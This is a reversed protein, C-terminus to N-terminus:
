EAVHKDNYEFMGLPKIFEPKFQIIGFSENAHEYDNGNVWQGHPSGGSGTSPKLTDVTLDLLCALQNKLPVNFHGIYVHGTKNMTGITINHWVTYDLIVNIGHWPSTNFSDYKHIINQHVGGKVSNTGRCCHYTTLGNQDMGMKFYLKVGPPDSYYSLWVNKLVSKAADWACVNFLPRAHIWRPRSLLQTDFGTGLKKLVEEVASKDELVPLFFAMSLTRFFLWQVGHQHSIPFLNHCYWNDLIVQTCIVNDPILALNEYPEMVQSLASKADSDCSSGVLPQEPSDLGDTDEKYKDAINDFVPEQPESDPPETVVSKHADHTTTAPMILAQPPKAVNHDLLCVRLSHPNSVLDFPPQGFSSLPVSHKSPSLSPPLLFSPVIIKSITVAVRTSTLNVGNLAQPRELAVIGHAVERGDTALWAVPTGGSSKSTIPQAVQLGLLQQHVESIAYIDLVAHDIFELDALSVNWKAAAGHEKARPDLEVSGAFPPSFEAFGCDCYLWKLDAGINNGVKKFFPSWLFALLSHPLNIHGRQIFLSTPILYVTQQYAVEILAVLGQVGTSLDVPWQLGLAATALPNDTTRHNMIIDFRLNVQMATSLHVVQWRQKPFTLPPLTNHAPVPVVGKFLSPFAHQVEEKDACGNDMFVAEVDGHGFKTLSHAIEYMNPMFQDHGKTMTFLMSWIEGYDNVTTHLATFLAAGGVKGLHKIVKFSHDIALTCAPLLAICQKLKPTDHEILM